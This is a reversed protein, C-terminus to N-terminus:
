QKNKGQTVLEIRTKSQIFEQLTKSAKRRRAYRFMTRQNLWYTAFANEYINSLEVGQFAFFINEDVLIDVLIKELKPLPINDHTTRPSESILPLVIVPSPQPLVYNEMMSRTPNLFVRGTYEEMLRNFVSECADKEAEVVILNQGPQHIMFEHLISTEWCLYDLYPFTKQLIQHISSLKKTPSHFFMRKRSAQEKFAYMGSGLSVLIQKKELAYLVRRFFQETFDKAHARYFSRLENKTIFARDSFTDKLEPLHLQTHNDKM